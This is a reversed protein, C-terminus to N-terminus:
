SYCVNRVLLHDLYEGEEDIYNMVCLSINGIFYVNNYKDLKSIIIKQTINAVTQASFNLVISLCKDKPLHTLYDLVIVSKGTGTPGVFLLPIENKLLM